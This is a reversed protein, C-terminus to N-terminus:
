NQPKKPIKSNLKKLRIKENKTKERIEKEKELLKELFSIKEKRREEEKKEIEEKRKVEELFEKKLKIIKEKTPKSEKYFYDELKKTINIFSPKERKELEKIIEKLSLKESIGYYKKIQSKIASNLSNLLEETTKGEILLPSKEKLYFVRRKRKQKKIALYAFLVGLFLLIAAFIYRLSLDM